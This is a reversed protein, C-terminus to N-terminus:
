KYQAFNTSIGSKRKPGGLNANPVGLPDRSGLNLVMATSQCKTLELGAAKMYDLYTWGAQQLSSLDDDNMLTVYDSVAAPQTTYNAAAAAASLAAEREEQSQQETIARLLPVNSLGDGRAASASPSIATCTM